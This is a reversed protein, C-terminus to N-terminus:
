ERVLDKELGYIITMIGYEPDNLISHKLEGMYDQINQRLVPKATQVTRHHDWVDWIIIGIGIVVGLFKGGMKGAVKGGTKTAMKASTKAALKSSVGAGLRSLAPRLSQFLVLTGGATLGALAKLSIPVQRNAEVGSVMVSLDNLYRDWAAPEIRYEEPIKKLKDQLRETYSFIVDNIIREMEMQAIQPRIVRNAFELQVTETIAEAASPSGSNIWHVIQSLLGEIGLKQQTWYSFYWPLFDSDVREMKAAVWDDIRYEMSGATEERAETMVERVKQDVETWDVKEVVKVDRPKLGTDTKSSKFFTLRGLVILIVIVILVWLLRSLSHILGSWQSIRSEGNDKRGTDKKRRKFVASM